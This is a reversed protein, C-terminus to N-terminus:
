LLERLELTFEMRKGDRSIGVSYVTGAEARLLQRIAIVGGFADVGIGNITRIVDGEAFGAEEAPTGPAVFLVAPVGEPQWVSLGCMDHASHADFHDGKEVIVQQREYDLYLVFHEFISNGLNGTVDSAGLAGAVEAPPVSLWPDDITFGALEFAEFRQHLRAMRGGAGFGVAEISPRERLGHEDAYPFHFATGSAGLDVSWLGGHAGDVTAPVTFTHSRLPADLVVGDGDYEFTAPDYFDLTENAYDVRTVFRSLFDYGLIGGIEMGSTRRFLDSIAVSAATQAEFEIGQLRFPPLNVFSVEVVNGAGQGKMEGEPELGLALAYGEDIVTISAGTDLAWLSTSCDITVMLFLHREIYRFPVGIAADGDVFRYDKVDEGPPEFLAPDIEVDVEYSTIEIAQKQGVPLSEMDQFFSRQVGNVPRYDSYTTHMEGHPSTTVTKEVFFTSTNIFEVGHDDNLTNTTRVVYCEVGDVSETGELTVDFVESEPDRHEFSEQRLSLERRILSAEDRVVQLKGNQDVEWAFEGNDGEVQRFVQLDLEMRHKGPTENWQEIVGELGAMRFIAEVHSSREAKLRELGGIAEYHRELVDYPDTLEVATAGQAAGALVLVAILLHPLRM